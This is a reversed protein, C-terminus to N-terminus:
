ETIVPAPKLEIRAVAIGLDRTDTSGTVTSPKFTNDVEIEVLAARSLLNTVPFEFYYEGSSLLRETAIENGNIKLTIQLEQEPIHDLVASGKLTLLLQKECQQSGLVLESTKGMWRYGGSEQQYWGAILQAESGAQSFDIVNAYGEPTPSIIEFRRRYIIRPDPTKKYENTVDYMQGQFKLLVIMSKLNNVNDPLVDKGDMFIELDNNKYYLRLLHKFSNITNEDEDANIFYLVAEKPLQPHLFKISEIDAKAISSKKAVWSNIELHGVIAWSIGVYCIVFLVAADKARRGLKNFSSAVLVSLSVVSINVYYNQAHDVYPLVPILAVVFWLLSFLFTKKDIIFCAMIGSLVLLYVAYAIFSTFVYRTARDLLSIALDLDNVSWKFYDWLNRIISTDFAPKYPGGGEFGITVFRILLYVFVVSAFPIALKIGSVISSISFRNKLYFYFLLITVPITIASEKSMLAFIFFVLSFLYDSFKNSDLFIVFFLISTLYFLAMGSETIASIWYVPIFISSNVGYIIAGLFCYFAHIRLQNLIAYVLLTNIIHIGLTTFHFATFDLGFIQYNIFFFVEQTLPRYTGAGNYQFFVEILQWSNQINAAILLWAFDDLAFFFNASNRFTYAVILALLIILM